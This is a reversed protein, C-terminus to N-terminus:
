AAPESIDAVRLRLLSVLAAVPVRVQYGRQGASIVIHQM